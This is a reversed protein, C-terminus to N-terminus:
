FAIAWDRQRTDITSGIVRVQGRLWAHGQDETHQPRWFMDVNSSYRETVVPPLEQSRHVTNEEKYCGQRLNSKM